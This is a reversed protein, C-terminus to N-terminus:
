RKLTEIVTRLRVVEKALEVCAALAANGYSVTLMGNPTENVAEPLIAQISQASVGVQRDGSDKREYTGSKVNALKDIFDGGLLLWNQKLREDSQSDFTGRGIIDGNGDIDLALNGGTVLGVRNTSIWYLGSDTDSSFAVSPNTTSGDGVLYSGTAGAVQLFRAAAATIFVDKTGAGFNVAAGANSSALVTTRTLTNAGSYTGLGVEWGTAPAFEAISYYCTDSPSTLVSSFTRYGTVAGALTFAGTGTTTSTERVRDATIHAM